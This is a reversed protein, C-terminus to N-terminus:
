YSWFLIECAAYVLYTKLFLSLFSLEKMHGVQFYVITRLDETWDRLQTHSKPVGHVAACLAKKDMVLEQLKNLSMDMSNTIGDLFRIRQWGRRMRGEIKQLLLLNEVSDTRRMLHGFCQLKVKLILRELSYEPSIEKLVSYNSRKWDFPSVLTKEVVVTCFCWNKLAWSEKHDLVWM